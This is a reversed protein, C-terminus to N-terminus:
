NNNPENKWSEKRRDDLTSKGDKSGVTELFTESDEKALDKKAFKNMAASDENM